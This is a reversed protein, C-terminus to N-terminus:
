AHWSPVDATLGALAELDSWAYGIVPILWGQMSDRREGQPNAGLAKYFNRAASNGRVVWLGGSFLGRMLMWRACALLLARGLGRRHHGSKVYLQHIEGQGLTALSRGSAAGCTAYGIPVGDPSEAIFVGYDMDDDQRLLESRWNRYLRPLELNELVSAPLLGPYTERWTAQQLEALAPGDSPEARRIILNMECIQRWNSFRLVENHSSSCVLNCVPQLGCSQDRTALVSGDLQFILISLRHLWIARM